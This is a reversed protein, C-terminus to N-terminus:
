FLVFFHSMWCHLIHHNWCKIFFESFMGLLLFSVWDLLFMLFYFCIWVHYLHLFQSVLFDSCNCCYTWYNALCWSNFTFSDFLFEPFFFAIDSIFFKNFSILRLDSDASSFILSRFIYFSDFSFVFLFFIISFYLVLKPIQPFVDFLQCTQLLM